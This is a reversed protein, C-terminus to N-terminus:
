NTIIRRIQERESEFNNVAKRNWLQESQEYRREAFFKIPGPIFQQDEESWRKVCEAFRMTRTRIYSAAAAGHTAKLYRIHEDIVRLIGMYSELQKPGWDQPIRPYAQLITIAENLEEPPAVENMGQRLYRMQNLYTTLHPIYQRERGSMMIKAEACKARLYAIAEEQTRPQGDIEGAVIRDLAQRISKHEEAKKRLPSYCKRISEVTVDLWVVGSVISLSGQM